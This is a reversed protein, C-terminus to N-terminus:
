EDNINRLSELKFWRLNSINGNADTFRKQKDQYILGRYKAYIKLWQTLKRLGIKLGTDERMQEFFYKKIKYESLIGGKIQDDMYQVFEPNTSDRLKRESINIENYDIFGYKLYKQLCQAMYRYFLMWESKDWGSFFLHGFEDVPTLDLGYHSNLEVERMRREFSAGEGQISYNTSGFFKPSKSFPITFSNVNKKEIQIDDTIVSFLREIKFNKPCDNFEVLQTDISINQFRFQSDFNFNKGDIRVVNRVKSIAKGILSKGTGGEPNESLVEDVLFTAKTTADDKYTHLLYGISTELALIRKEDGTIFHIFHEFEAHAEQKFLKEDFEMDIRQSDWVKFPLKDYTKVQIASKDVILYHNAFFIYDRYQNGRVFKVDVSKLFTLNYESFLNPINLLAGIIMSRTIKISGEKKKRQVKVTEIPDDLAEIYGFVFDKIHIPSAKYVINNIVRVLFAKNNDLWYKGFGFYSLFDMFQRKPIVLKDKDTDYKWFKIIENIEGTEIDKNELVSLKGFVSDVSTLDQSIARRAKEPKNDRTNNNIPIDQKIYKFEPLNERPSKYGSQWGSRITNQTEAKSLGINLAIDRLNSKVSSENISIGLNRYASCLSAIKFAAQNLTINRRESGATTQALINLESEIARNFYAMALNKNIDKNKVVGQHKQQDVEVKASVNDVIDDVEVELLTANENRYVRGSSFYCARAVDPTNDSQVKQGLLNSIKKDINSQHHRYVQSFVVHSTIPEALKCIIKLGTGSPSVFAALIEPITSFNIKNFESSSKLCNDFDYILYHAKKLEKNKRSNFTGSVFYPLNKKLENREDADKINRLHEIKASLLLNKEMMDLVKYLEVEKKFQTNRINSGINVLKNM